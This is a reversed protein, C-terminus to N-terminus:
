KAYPTITILQATQATFSAEFLYCHELEVKIITQEQKDRAQALELNLSSIVNQGNFGEVHVESVGE